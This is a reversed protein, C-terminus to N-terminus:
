ALESQERQTAPVNRGKLGVVMQMTHVTGSKTKQWTAAAVETYTAVNHYRDVWRMEGLSVAEVVRSRTFYTRCGCAEPSVNAGPSYSAAAQSSLIGVQKREYPRTNLIPLVRVRTFMRQRDALM